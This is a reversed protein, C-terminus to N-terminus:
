ARSIKNVNTKTAPLASRTEIEVTNPEQHLPSKLWVNQLSLGLALSVTCPVSNGIVKWKDAASGVLVEHDPFGQAQRAEM